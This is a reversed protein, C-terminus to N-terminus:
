GESEMILESFIGFTSVINLARANEPLNAAEGDKDTITRAGGFSIGVEFCLRKDLGWCARILSM